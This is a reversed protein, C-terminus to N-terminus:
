RAAEADDGHARRVWRIPATPVLTLEVWDRGHRDLALTEAEERDDAEIDGQHRLPEAYETRAFVMYRDM